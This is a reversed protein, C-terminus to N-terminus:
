RCGTLQCEILGPAGAAKQVAAYVATGDSGDVRESAIGMAEALASPSLASQPAFPGETVYWSVVFTVPARHLAALSLAEAFLGYSVSGTGLFVLSPDGAMAAGVALMARAVPSDGPPVVRYPRAGDLQEVPCGRLLACARERRGPFVWAKRSLALTAGAIIAELGRGSVPNPDAAHHAGITALAAELDPSLHTAVM